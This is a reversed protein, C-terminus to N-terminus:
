NIEMMKLIFYNYFLGTKEGVDNGRNINHLQGLEAPSWKRANCGGDEELWSLCM